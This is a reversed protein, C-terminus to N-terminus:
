AFSNYISALQEGAKGFNEAADAAENINSAVRKDTVGYHMSVYYALALASIAVLSWLIIASTKM